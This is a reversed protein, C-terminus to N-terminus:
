ATPESGDYPAPTPAAWGAPQEVYAQGTADQEVTEGASVDPDASPEPPGQEGDDDPDGDDAPVLHSLDVDSRTFDGVLDDAYGYADSAQPEDTAAAGVSEAEDGTDAPAADAPDTVPGADSVHGPPEVHEPTDGAPDTSAAPDQDPQPDM